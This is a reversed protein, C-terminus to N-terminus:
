ESYTNTHTLIHHMLQILLTLNNNYFLNSIWIILNSYINHITVM